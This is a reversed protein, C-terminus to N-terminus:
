AAMTRARYARIAAIKEPIRARHEPAEDVFRELVDLEDNMFMPHQFRLLANLLMVVNSMGFHVMDDEALGVTAAELAEALMGVRWLAIVILYAVPTYGRNEQLRSTLAAFFRQQEDNGALRQYVAMLAQLNDSAIKADSPEATIEQDKHSYPTWSDGPIQVHNGEHVYHFSGLGGRERGNKGYRTIEDQLVAAVDKEIPDSIAHLPDALKPAESAKPVVMGKCVVKLRQTRGELDILELTVPLDHGARTGPVGRVIITASGSSHGHPPIQHRINEGGGHLNGRQERISIDAVLVEGRIHPKVLKVGIISLPTDGLNKVLVRVSIQTTTSKDAQQHTSWHSSSTRAIHFPKAASLKALRDYAWRVIGDAAKAFTLVGCFVLGIKFWTQVDDTLHDSISPLCLALGFACAAGALLWTPFDRLAQLIKVYAAPEAPVM